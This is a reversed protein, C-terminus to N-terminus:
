SATHITLIPRLLCKYGVVVHCFKWKRFLVEEIQFDVLDKTLDVDGVVQTIGLDEAGCYRVAM